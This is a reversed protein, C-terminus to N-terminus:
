RASKRLHTKFTHLIFRYDNLNDYELDVILYKDRMREGFDKDQASLDTFINPNVTTYLVRNRLNSVNWTREKRKAIQKGSDTPLTQFDTNQYDDYLRIKNFFDDVINRGDSLNISETVFEYNDFVKTVTPDPNVILKLTSKYQTGYFNGHLGHDHLWLKNLTDDPSFISVQDNIYVSPKFSYFSTYADIFDNYALTFLNKTFPYMTVTGSIVPQEPIVIKVDAGPVRTVYLTGIYGFGNQIIVVPLNDVAWAPVATENSNFFYNSAGSSSYELILPKTIDQVTDKFTFIAENYQYDYTATIGKDLYPNDTVQILGSLNNFFYSSLGKVLSISTPNQGSMRYMNKTNMDFFFLSDHSVCFGFQHRSGIVRSLYDYRSLLGGTGLIINSGSADQTLSRDNMAVAAIGKDQFGVVLDKYIVINNLEGQVTDLDIYDEPKFINWSDSLEGNIKPQSRHIRVDFKTQNIYPDPLPFFKVVNNEAEYSFDYSFDESYEITVNPASTNGTIFGVKDGYVISKNPVRRDIDKRLQVPFSSEVPFFWSKLTTENYPNNDYNKLQNAYDMVSVQTDGGYVVATFVNPSSSNVPQYHGTSIYENYSRESHTIGGYQSVVNRKYIALIRSRTSSTVGANFLEINWNNGPLAISNLDNTQLLVRNNAYSDPIFSGTDFSYNNVTKTGTGTNVSYIRRGVRYPDQMEITENVAIPWNQSKHLSSTKSANYYKAIICSAQAQNTGGIFALYNGYNNTPLVEMVDITDGTSYGPFSKFLFEPSIFTVLDTAFPKVSPISTPQTDWDVQGAIIPVDCNPIPYHTNNEFLLPELIGEALVTKDNNNRELRVISFGSIQDKISSIDVTFEISMTHGFYNNVNKEPDTVLPFALLNKNAAIPDTASPMWSKPFRIDGIYHVYSTEGKKSRFVIGFRYTEDRTYGKLGYRIHPSTSNSRATSQNVTSAASNNLNYSGTYLPIDAVPRDTAGGNPLNRMDLAVRFQNGLNYYTTTKPATTDVTFEDPLFRYSVNPGSGGFVESNRQYLSNTNNNPAQMAMDQYADLTTIAPYDANTNITITSQTGSADKVKIDDSFAGFRYARADFDVDFDSYKTNGFLLYNFKSGVTKVTQFVLNEALFEDLSIPIKTENGTYFFSFEGNAPVPQSPLIYIDPVVDKSKRYLIVPEIRDYASDINYVKGQITKAAIQGPDDVEYLWTDVIESVKLIPIPNSPTLFSTTAGAINTLRASIQYIGTEIAGTPLIANVSATPINLDPNIELKAPELAFANSDAININRPRNYNDTWYMKQIDETEYNGLTGGLQPIPHSLSFNLINNYLLKLKPVLAYKDYTLEWIQGQQNVPNQLSNNCTFLIIRDRIIGWGCIKLNDAYNIEVSLDCNTATGSISQFYLQNNNDYLSYLCIRSDNYAVGVHYAALGPDNKLAQGLNALTAINNYVAAYNNTGINLNVSIPVAPSSPRFNTLVLVESCAPITLYDSTGKINRLSGTSLGVDTVLSFNEAHIYSGEKFLSKSIDKNMGGTFSNLHEM